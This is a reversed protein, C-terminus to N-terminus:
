GEYASEAEARHEGDIADDIINQLVEVTSTFMRLLCCVSRFHSSWRTEVPQQLTGIQNLGSRTKLEELDILCGIENANVVKLQENRKCSANVTKILFLLALFFHSIANVQKSTKVLALRLRHAFCHIYYAYPCDNLILAQLGNWMGRMNSAEDYGQGRINQIDLCHQSLLSYIEKKLTLAVTNAVHILEFFCEKVFGEVDVYRFVVAMQEKMSEDRAEDVIICFKTHPGISGMPVIRM